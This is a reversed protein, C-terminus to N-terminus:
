EHQLSQIKEQLIEITADLTPAEMLRMRFDAADKFDSVYIKYFRKMIEEPKSHEWTKKYLTIHEILLKLKQELPIDDKDITENFIWPDQFIGRGIMVGDLSYKQIVSKMQEKSVIDGNGIIVTHPSITNRLKIIKEMEEWHAPVKSMEKVTRLHVTLADPKLSLLFGIWEETQLQHFGLRTKISVPLTDGVSKKISLFIEKALEPNKILAGCSGNRIIVRDPCGMNIDIGAFGMKKVIEASKYYNEPNKGWLQVILPTEKQTFRLHGKTIHSIGKSCIADAATFETFFVDPRGISAIVRRFVTDTVNEMPALVKIPKEFQHWFNNMNFSRNYWKKKGFGKRPRIIKESHAIFTCVTKPIKKPCCVFPRRCILLFLFKKVRSM